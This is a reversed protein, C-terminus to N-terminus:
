LIMRRRVEKLLDNISIQEIAKEQISMDIRFTAEGNDDDFVSSVYAEVRSSVPEMIFAGNKEYHIKLITGYKDNKIEINM